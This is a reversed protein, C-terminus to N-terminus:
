AGIYWRKLRRSPSHAAGEGRGHLVRWNDIVLAVGPSWFFERRTSYAILVDRASALQNEQGRPPKMCIPDYRILGGDGYEPSLVRCYFPRHHGGRVTWGPSTLAQPCDNILRNWDLLWLLTPCPNEGEQQCELIVYRPPRPYYACDTHMPQAALGTTASMTTLPAEAQHYPRLIDGCTEGLRSPVLAGSAEILTTSLDAASIQAWGEANLRQHINPEWL